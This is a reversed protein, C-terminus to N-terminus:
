QFRRERVSKPNPAAEFGAHVPKVLSNDPIDHGLITVGTGLVVNNGVRCPGIISSKAYMVVGDGLVPFRGAEDSGVTCGQYVCFYNGYTAHGLVAGLPHMFQFVEPLTVDPYVDLGHMAKNLYFIRFALPNGPSRRAIVNALLYLFAAYHDPHLPNFLVAGAERYKPRDIGAFCLRTRELATDVDAKLAATEPARDDPFFRDLQRSVYQALRHADFDRIVFAQM